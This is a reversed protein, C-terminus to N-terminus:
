GISACAVMITSLSSKTLSNNELISLLKKLEILYEAAAFIEGERMFYDSDHAFSEASSKAIISYKEILKKVEEIAKSM